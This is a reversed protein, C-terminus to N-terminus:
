KASHHFELTFWGRTGLRLDKFKKEHAILIPFLERFTEVLMLRLSAMLEQLIWRFHFIEIGLSERLHSLITSHSVCLAESISSAAYFRQKDLLALIRIDFLEIPPM